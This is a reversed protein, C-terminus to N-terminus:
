EYDKVRSDRGTIQEVAQDTQKIYIAENEQMKNVQPLETARTEIKIPRENSLSQSLQIDCHWNVKNHGKAIKYFQILDGRNRRAEIQFGQTQWDLSTTLSTAVDYAFHAFDPLRFWIACM